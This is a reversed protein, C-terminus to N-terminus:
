REYARLVIAPPRVDTPTDGGNTRGTFRLELISDLASNLCSWEEIFRRQCEFRTMCYEWRCRLMTRLQREQRRPSVGSGEMRRRMKLHACRANM